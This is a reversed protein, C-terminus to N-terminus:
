DILPGYGSRQRKRHKRGGGEIDGQEKRAVYRSSSRARMDAVSGIQHEPTTQLPRNEANNSKVREPTGSLALMTDIVNDAGDAILTELPINQRQAAAINRPSLLTQPPRTATPTGLAKPDHRRRHPRGGGEVDGQTWGAIYRPADRRSREGTQSEPTTVMANHSGQEPLRPLTSGSRKEPTLCLTPPPSAHTYRVNAQLRRDHKASLLASPSEMLASNEVDAVDDALVSTERAAAADIAGHQCHTTNERHLPTHDDGKQRKFSVHQSPSTEADSTDSGDAHALVPLQKVRTSQHARLQLADETPSEPSADRSQQLERTQTTNRHASMVMTTYAQAQAQRESPSQTSGDNDLGSFVLSSGYPVSLAARPSFPDLQLQDPDSTSTDAADNQNELLLHSTQAVAQDPTEFFGKPFRGTQRINSYIDLLPPDLRDIVAEIYVNLMHWFSHPSYTFLLEEFQSPAAQPNDLLRTMERIDWWSENFSNIHEDANSLWLIPHVLQRTNANADVIDIAQLTEEVSYEKFQYEAIALQALFYALLQYWAKGVLLPQTNDFRNHQLEAIEASLSLFIQVAVVPSQSPRMITWLRHLASNGLLPDTPSLQAAGLLANTSAHSRMPGIEAHLSAAPLIDSYCISLLRYINSRIYFGVSPKNSTMRSLLQDIVVATSRLRPQLTAIECRIRDFDAFYSADTTHDNSTTDVDRREQLRGLRQRLSLMYSAHRCAQELFSDVLMTQGLSEVPVDETSM